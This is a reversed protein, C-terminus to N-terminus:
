QGARPQAASHEREWKKRADRVLDCVAAQTCDVPQGGRIDIWTPSVEAAPEVMLGPGVVIRRALRYGGTLPKTTSGGIGEIIDDLFAPHTDPPGVELRQWMGESGRRWRIWDNPLDADNYKLGAANFGRIYMGLPDALALRSSDAKPGDIQSIVQDYAGQAAHPDANRCALYAARQSDFIEYTEAKRRAGADSVSYPRAGFMVIYVLDDLGNIPQRMFLANQRNLSGVPDLPVGANKLEAHEGHGAVQLAFAIRRVAPSLVMPDANGDGYLETYSVDRRLVDKAMTRLQVPDVAAVVTWYEALETTATFRKPRVRGDQDTAYVLIYELYENQFTSRGKEGWDALKEAWEESLCTRPEAPSGPWQVLDTFIANQLQSPDALFYPKSSGLRGNWLGQFTALIETNWADIVAQTAQDAKGPEAYPM